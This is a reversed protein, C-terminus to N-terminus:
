KFILFIFIFIEKTIYKVKSIDPHISINNSHNSQTDISNTHISPTSNIHLPQLPMHEAYAETSTSQRHFVRGYEAQFAMDNESYYILM